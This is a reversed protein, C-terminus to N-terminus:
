LSCSDVENLWPYSIYMEKLEYIMDFAKQYGYTKCKDLFFNYVFRYCGFTKNILEILIYDLSTLKICISGGLNLIYHM